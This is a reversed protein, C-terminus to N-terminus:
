SGEWPPRFIFTLTLIALGALFFVICFFVGAREFGRLREEKLEENEGFMQTTATYQMQAIWKRLALWVLSVAIMLLALTM